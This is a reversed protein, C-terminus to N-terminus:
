KQLDALYIQGISIGQDNTPFVRNYYVVFGEKALLRECLSLLVRNAFVGGSLCVENLNNVERIKLCIKRTIDAIAFHFAYSLKGTDEDEAHHLIYQLMNSIDPIFEGNEEIIDVLDALSREELVEGMNSDVFAKGSFSYNTSMSDLYEEASNQLRIACEGEYSNYDCIRLICSAADFLRGMGSNPHANINNDLAAMLLQVESEPIIGDPICHFADYLYCAASVRANKMAEDGGVIKIPKLHAARDFEGNTCILFESGWITKDTGFGTGDFAVGICSKLGFEAMVSGIHAHHHQIQLFSINNCNADSNTIESFYEKALETTHYGPHLDAVILRKDAKLNDAKFINGFKAFEKKQLKLVGYDEMDGLFQSQIIRDKFGIAFSNKLDAGFAEFITTKDLEKDLFLPLPVYGRARRIFRHVDKGNRDKILQIVSDDLPRLIERKHYLIGDVKNAFQEKFDDDSVLMPEGSINGSTVILEMLEKTLLKHIGTSPLFAGIQRSNGCVNNAFPNDKRDLLVIPKASSLLYKAEASSVNCIKEIDALSDFMVAFPKKERGKIERLRRVTETKYPSAVLQYGGIGKLAIIGGDRLIDISARIAQEGVYSKTEGVLKQKDSCYDFIMQPGCNHCSITQAHRRRGMGYESACEPCMSFVGMTTTERDYPLAKLISFRPGCSACSILPYRYRRDERDLIEEMCDQCIGIDPPFVPLYDGDFEGSSGVIRFGSHRSLGEPENNKLYDLSVNLVISGSPSSNKLEDSFLGIKEEDGEAIIQVIGGLNKVEGSLEYKNALEAVYPRYGVGQVAGTVRILARM